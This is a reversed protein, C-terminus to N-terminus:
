GAEDWEAKEEVCPIQVIIYSGTGKFKSSQYM